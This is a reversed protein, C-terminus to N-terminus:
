TDYQIHANIGIASVTNAFGSFDARLSLVDGAEFTDIGAAQTDYGSYDGTGSISIAKSFALTSNIRVTLTVDGPSSYLTVNCWGGLGIISGARDAVWGHTDSMSTQGVEMYVNAGGLAGTKAGMITSRRVPTVLAGSADEPFGELIYKRGEWGLIMKATAADEDVAVIVQQNRPDPNRGSYKLWKWSLPLSERLTAIAAAIQTFSPPM